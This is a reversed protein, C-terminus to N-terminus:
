FNIGILGWGVGEGPSRSFFIGNSMTLVGIASLFCASEQGATGGSVALM